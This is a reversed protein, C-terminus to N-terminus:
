QVQQEGLENQQMPELYADNMFEMEASNPFFSMPAEGGSYSAYEDYGSFMTMNALDQQTVTFNDGSQPTTYMLAPGSTAPSYRAVSRGAHRYSPESLSGPPQEPLQHVERGIKPAAERLMSNCLAWGRRASHSEEGLNHLWRVAKKAGDFVSEAREPMHDARFSLELLLVVTAQMLYHVICWWPGTRNLGVANPEDPLMQLMDRASDVCTAAAVRNFERSKMSQSPIKRDLRCLCPRHVIIQISYYSFGLCMRQQVLNQDRQKRKFDLAAPLNSHWDQITQELESMVSQVKSWTTQMAEPTYIRDLSAQAIKTLKIYHLFYLSCSPPVNKAWEFDLHQPTSPSRSASTPKSASRSRDSSSAASSPNKPSRHLLGPYRANKQMDAGLMTMAHQSHFADEEMPIPLPATYAHDPVSTPRGTTMSLQHEVAYLSWWVRYRIEKSTDPTRSSDNRM